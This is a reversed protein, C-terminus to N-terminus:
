RLNNAMKLLIKEIKNTIERADINEQSTCGSGGCRKSYYEKLAILESPLYSGSVNPQDLNGEQETLNENQKKM